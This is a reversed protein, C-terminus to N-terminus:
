CHRMHGSHCTGCRERGDDPEASLPTCVRAAPWAGTSALPRPPKKLRNRRRRPRNRHRSPRQIPPSTDSTSISARDRLTPTQPPPRPQRSTKVVTSTSALQGHPHTPASTKEAASTAGPRQCRRSADRPHPVGTDAALPSYSSPPSSLSSDVTCLPYLPPDRCPARYHGYSYATPIPIQCSSVFSFPFEYLSARRALLSLSPVIATYALNTLLVYLAMCHKFLMGTM